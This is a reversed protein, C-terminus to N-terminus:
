GHLGDPAHWRTVIQGAHRSRRPICPNHISCRQRQKRLQVLGAGVRGPFPEHIQVRRQNLMPKRLTASQERGIGIVQALRYHRGHDLCEGVESMVTADAGKSIPQSGDGDMPQTGKPSRLLIPRAAGALGVHQFKEILPGIRAAFQASGPFLFVVLEKQPPGHLEDLRIKM